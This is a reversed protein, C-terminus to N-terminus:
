RGGNLRKRRRELQPVEEKEKVAEQRRFAITSTSEAWVDVWDERQPQNRRFPDQISGTALYLTGGYSQSTGESPAAPQGLSKMDSAAAPDDLRGILAQQSSAKREADSHAKLNQTAQPALLFMQSHVVEACLRYFDTAAHAAM